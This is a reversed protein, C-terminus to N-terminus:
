DVYGDWAVMLAVDYGDVHAEMAEALTVIRAMRGRADLVVYRNGLQEVHYILEHDDPGIDRPDYQPLGSITFGIIGVVTIQAM